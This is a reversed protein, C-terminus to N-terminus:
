KALLRAEAFVSEAALANAEDREFAALREAIEQNWAAEVEAIPAAQLSQLLVEALRAREDAPLAVAMKELESLLINM